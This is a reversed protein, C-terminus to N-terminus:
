LATLRAPFVSVRELAGSEKNLTPNVGESSRRHRNWRLRDPELDGFRRGVQIAAAERAADGALSGVADHWSGFDM